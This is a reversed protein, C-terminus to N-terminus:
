AAPVVARLTADAPIAVTATRRHRAVSLTVLLLGLAAWSWLVLMPRSAGAGDFYATSRLLTANAGPPLLQGLAGWGSPLLEPASTLGSLPNGLLMVLASGLGFGAAGLLSELGLLLLSIAGLGLSLGLGVRVFGGDVSGFWFQLIAALATGTLLAFATAATVRLWPRGPFRRILLLAPVLGGIVVPLGAGALGLGRADDAPLPALDDVTGQVGQREALQQGTATLAQAVVPSGGTAVVTVPAQQPALVFGGYVQRERVAARLSNGDPYATVVFAGPAAQALGQQVQAVAPAPGALGIPVDRPATRAGPLAFAVLVLAVLAVLGLVIVTAELV